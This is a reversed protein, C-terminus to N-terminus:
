NASTVDSMRDSVPTGDFYDRVTNFCMQMLIETRVFVVFLNREVPIESASHSSFFSSDDVGYMVLDSVYFSSTIRFAPFLDYAAFKQGLHGRMGM